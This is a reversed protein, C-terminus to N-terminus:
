SETTDFPAGAPQPEGSSVRDSVRAGVISQAGGSGAEAPSPGAETAVGGALQGETMAPDGHAQEVHSEGSVLRDPHTHTEPLDSDREARGISAALDEGSREHAAPPPTNETMACVEENLANGSTM